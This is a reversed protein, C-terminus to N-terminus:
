PRRLLLSRHSLVAAIRIAVFRALLLPFSVLAWTQVPNDPESKVLEHNRMEAGGVDRVLVLRRPSSPTSLATSLSATGIPVPAVPFGYQEPGTSPSATSM